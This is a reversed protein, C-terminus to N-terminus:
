YKQAASLNQLRIRSRGLAVIGCNYSIDLLRLAFLHTIWSKDGQKDIGKSSVCEYAYGLITIVMM